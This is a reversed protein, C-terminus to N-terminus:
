SVAATTTSVAFETTAVTPDEIVGAVAAGAAAAVGATAGGRIGGQPEEYSKMLPTHTEAASAFSQKNRHWSEACAACSVTVVSAACIRTGGGHLVYTVAVVSAACTHSDGGACCM